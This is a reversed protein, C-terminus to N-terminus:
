SYMKSLIYWITDIYCRRQHNTSSDSCFIRCCKEIVWSITNSSQFLLFNIDAIVDFLTYIIIFSFMHYISFYQQDIKM